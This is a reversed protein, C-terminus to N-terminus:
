KGRWVRGYLPNFGIRCALEAARYELHRPPLRGGQAHGLPWRSRRAGACGLGGSAGGYTECLRDAGGQGRCRWEFRDRARAAPALTALRADLWITDFRM